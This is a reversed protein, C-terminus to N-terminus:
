RPTALLGSIVKLDGATAPVRSRAPAHRWECWSLKAEFIFIYKLAPDRIIVM